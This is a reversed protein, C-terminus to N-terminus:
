EIKKAAREEKGRKRGERAELPHSVTSVVQISFVDERLINRHFYITGNVFSGNM